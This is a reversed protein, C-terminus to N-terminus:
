PDRLNRLNIYTTHTRRLFGDGGLQSDRVPTRATITMKVARIDKLNSPEDVEVEPSGELVYRFQLNEIHEAVPQRGGGTNEDRFLVPISRDPDVRLGYTVAGVLFIPEGASHNEQITWGDSLTIKDGAINGIVYHDCGNLCLYKKKGTNFRRHDKYNVSFSNAGAKVDTELTGMEDFAALVTIQDHTIGDVTIDNAPNIVHTFGNVNGFVTIIDNNGANNENKGGFGAMRIERIMRHIAVRANQQMETVQDQTAYTRQQFIFSNYIGAILISSIALAILIEILTVGSSRKSMNRCMNQSPTFFNIKQLRLGFPRAAKRFKLIAVNYNM